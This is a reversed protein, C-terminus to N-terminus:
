TELLSSSIYLQQATSCYKAHHLKVANTVLSITIIKIVYIFRLVDFDHYTHKGSSPILFNCDRERDFFVYKIVAKNKRKKQQM